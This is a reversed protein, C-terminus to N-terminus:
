RAAFVTSVAAAPAPPLGPKAPRAGNLSAYAGFGSRGARYDIEQKLAFASESRFGAKAVATALANRQQAEWNAPVRVVLSEGLQQLPLCSTSAALWPCRDGRLGRDGAPGAAAAEGIGSCREEFNRPM